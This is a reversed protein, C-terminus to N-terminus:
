SRRRKSHEIKTAMKDLFSVMESENLRIVRKGKKNGRQESLVKGVLKSVDSKSLKVIQAM